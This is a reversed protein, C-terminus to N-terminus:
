EVGVKSTSSLTIPSIGLLTQTIASFKVTATVTVTSGTACPSPSCSMVTVTAGGPAKAIVKSSATSLATPHVKAYRAGERVANALQAQTFIARGFDITGFVISLFILSCLAFEVIAQGSSERKFIGM